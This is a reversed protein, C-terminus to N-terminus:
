VDGLDASGVAQAPGPEPLSRARRKTSSHKAVFWKLASITDSIQRSSRRASSMACDSVAERVYLRGMPKARPAYWVAAGIM